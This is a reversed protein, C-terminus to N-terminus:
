LIPAFIKGPLQKLNNGNDSLPVIEYDGIATLGQHYEPFLRIISIEGAKEVIGIPRLKIDEVKM